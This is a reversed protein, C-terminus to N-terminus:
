IWRCGTVCQETVIVPVNAPRATIIGDLFCLGRFPKLPVICFAVDRHTRIRIVTVLFGTNESIYRDIVILSGARGIHRFGRCIRGNGIIVGHIRKLSGLKLYLVACALRYCGQCGIGLASRFRYVQRYAGVFYGLCSSRFAILKVAGRLVQNNCAAVVGAVRCRHAERILRNSCGNICQKLFCGRKCCVLAKRSCLKSYLKVSVCVM